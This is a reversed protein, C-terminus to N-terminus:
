ARWSESLGEVNGIHGGMVISVTRFRPTIVGCKSVSSAGM